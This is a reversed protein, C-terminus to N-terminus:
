FFSLQLDLEGLEFIHQRAKAALPLHQRAQAAANARAARPLRLELGVAAMNAAANIVNLRFQPADGLVTPAVALAPLFVLRKM